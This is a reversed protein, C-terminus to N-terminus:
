HVIALPRHVPRRRLTVWLWSPRRPAIMRSTSLESKPITRHLEDTLIDLMRRRAPDVVGTREIHGVVARFVAHILSQIGDGITQQQVIVLALVLAQSPPRRPSGFGSSLATGCSSGTRSRFASKTCRSM